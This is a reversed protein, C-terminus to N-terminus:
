FVVCTPLPNNLVYVYTVLYGEENFQFISNRQEMLNKIIDTCIQKAICVQLKTTGLVLGVLCKIVCTTTIICYLLIM